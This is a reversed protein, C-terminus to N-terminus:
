ILDFDRAKIIAQSRSNVGLKSYLIKIHMKITSEQLEIERAIQKNSLGSCICRLIQKQRPTLAPVDPARQMLSASDVSPTQGSLISFISQKLKDVSLTKRLVAAAGFRLAAAATGATAVGTLLIVPKGRQAAIVQRLGVLGDMGPIQFDLLVVDFAGEEAILDLASKVDAALQVIIQGDAELYAKLADRLLDHDDAFLLRM